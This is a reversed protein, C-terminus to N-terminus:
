SLLTDKAQNIKAALYDSGGRDPHVKQILRRHAEIIEKRDANMKVNLIECAEEKSMEGPKVGQQAGSSAESRWNTHYRDLYAMLLAASDGDNHQCDELFLLLDKLAMKSLQQSKYPGKVVWGDMEGTQQNLRMQIYQTMIQAQGATRVQQFMRILPQLSPLVRVLWSLIRPILPLVAGILAILWSLRGTLALLGLIGVASVIIVYKLIQKQKEKPLKRFRMLLFVAVAILILILFLRPM